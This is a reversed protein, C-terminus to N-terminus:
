RFLAVPVASCKETERAYEAIRIRDVAYHSNRIPPLQDAKSKCCNLDFLFMMNTELEWVSECRFAVCSGARDPATRVVM